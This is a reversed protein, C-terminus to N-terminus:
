PSPQLVIVNKGRMNAIDEKCDSLDSSMREQYTQVALSYKIDNDTSCPDWINCKALSWNVSTLYRYRRREENKGPWPLLTATVHATNTARPTASSQFFASFIIFSFRDQM